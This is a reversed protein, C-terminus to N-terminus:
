EVIKVVFTAITLPVLQKIYNLSREIVQALETQRDITVVNLVSSLTVIVQTYLYDRIIYLFLVLLVLQIYTRSLFANIEFSLDLIKIFFAAMKYFYLILYFSLGAVLVSDALFLFWVVKHEMLSRQHWIVVMWFFFLVLVVYVGM